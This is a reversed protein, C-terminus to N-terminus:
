FRISLTASISSADGTTSGTTIKGRVYRACNSPLRVRKLYAAAGASSAGTVQDNLITQAIAAFNSTTSTEIIYNVTRTDPIMTANLAPVSLELEIGEPKFADAGLDIGASTTSGASSPLAFAAPNLSADQINRSFEYAM